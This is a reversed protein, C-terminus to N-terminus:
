QGNRMVKRLLIEFDKRGWISPVPYGPNGEKIARTIILDFDKEQLEEIKEPIGMNANMKRISSIFNQAKEEVSSGAVGAADALESLEKWASKGFQEMVYPLLIANALGHAIGYIGGLAHAVAHVYGVFNNTFAIGAEFSGLLMNERAEVNTGDKYSKELNAYILKVADIANKKVYSSAFRNTYAEVAHTLADMGTAATIGAPLSLLLDPDLVAYKPTLCYDNVAYKYHIGDVTDTVVAAVTVESGTGATTPVAYFDPIKHLVKLVGKMQRVSQKPKVVRAAALKTCDIVSGGGVAVIAQCKGEIYAAAAKEVCEITPDPTIDSFVIIQIGNENLKDFFGKLTGRKLFGPTTTVFVKEKGSKKLLDVVQLLAGSGKIVNHKKQACVAMVLSMGFQQIRYLAKMNKGKEKKYM